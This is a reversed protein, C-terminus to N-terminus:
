CSFGALGWRQRVQKSKGRPSAISCCVDINAAIALFYHLCSSTQAVAGGPLRNDRQEQLHPTASVGPSAHSDAGAACGTTESVRQRERTARRGELGLKNIPLLLLCTTASMPWCALSHARADDAREQSKQGEQGYAAERAHISRISWIAIPTTAMRLIVVFVCWIASWTGSSPAGVNNVPLM